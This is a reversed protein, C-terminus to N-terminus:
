FGLDLDLTETDFRLYELWRQYLTVLASLNNTSYKALELFNNAQVLDKVQDKALKNEFPINYAQCFLQLSPRKRMAGFFTLEDQLDIHRCSKQWAPYRSELLNKTPRIGLAASRHLLFPVVMGRGNFTVLTDYHLVGDWFEFLLDKESRQKYIFNGNTDDKEHYSKCYVVGRKRELDYISLSAIKATLPSFALRDKVQQELRERDQEDRAQGAIWHTLSYQSNNDLSQWNEAVTELNFVLTAM